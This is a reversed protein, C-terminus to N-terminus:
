KYMSNLGKKFNTLAIAFYSPGFVNRAEGFINDKKVAPLQFM